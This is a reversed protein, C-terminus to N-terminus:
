KPKLRKTYAASKMEYGCASFLRHSRENGGMVQARVFEVGRGAASLRREAAQLLESGTGRGGHGPVLYISVDAESGAIDFRVV